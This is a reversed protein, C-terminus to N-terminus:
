FICGKWVRYFTKSADVKCSKNINYSKLVHNKFCGEFTKWKGNLGFKNYQYVKNEIKSRIRVQLVNWRKLMKDLTSSKSTSTMWVFIKNLFNFHKYPTAVIFSFLGARSKDEAVDDALHFKLTFLKFNKTNGYMYRGLLPKWNKFTGNMNYCSVSPSIVRRPKFMWNSTLHLFM